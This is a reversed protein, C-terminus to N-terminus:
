NSVRREGEGRRERREGEGRRERRERREGEGRRECVTKVCPRGIYVSKSVITQSSIVM